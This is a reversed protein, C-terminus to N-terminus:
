GQPFTTHDEIGGDIQLVALAHAELLPEHVLGSDEVQARGILRARERRLAKVGDVDHIEVARELPARYVRLRNRRNEGGHLDRNLEAAADAGEIRDRKQILRPTARTIRPM